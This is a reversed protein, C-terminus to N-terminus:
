NVEGLWYRKGLRCVIEVIMKVSYVMLYYALLNGVLPM